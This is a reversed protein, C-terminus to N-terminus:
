EDTLKAMEQKIITIDELNNVNVYTSAFPCYFVKEGDDIACQILDPLEKEKRHQNIPTLPIYNFIESRFVINGTGM